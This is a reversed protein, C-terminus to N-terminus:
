FTSILRGRGYAKTSSSGPKSIAEAVVFQAASEDTERACVGVVVYKRAAEGDRRAGTVRAAHGSAQASCRFLAPLGTTRRWEQWQQANSGHLMGACAGASQGCASCPPSKKVM